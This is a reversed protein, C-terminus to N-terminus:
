QGSLAALSAEIFGRRLGPLLEFAYIDSADNNSELLGAKAANARWDEVYNFSLALESWHSAEEARADSGRMVRVLDSTRQSCESFSEVLVWRSYEVSALARVLRKTDSTKLEGSLWDALDSSCM